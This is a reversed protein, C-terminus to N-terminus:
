GREVSASPYKGALCNHRNPAAGAVFDVLRFGLAKIPTRPMKAVDFLSSRSSNFKLSSSQLFLLQFIYLMNALESGRQRLEKM